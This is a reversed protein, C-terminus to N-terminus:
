LMVDELRTKGTALADDVDTNMLQAWENGVVVGELKYVGYMTSLITRYDKFGIAYGNEYKEIM